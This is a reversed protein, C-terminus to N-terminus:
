SKIKRAMKKFKGISSSIGDNFTKKITKQIISKNKNMINAFNSVMPASRSYIINTFFSSSKSFIDDTDKEKILSIMNDDIDNVNIFKNKSDDNYYNNNIKSSPIPICNTKEDSLQKFYENGKNDFKENRLFLSDDDVKDSNSDTSDYTLNKTFHDDILHLNDDFTNGRVRKIIEKDIPNKSVLEEKDFWEDNSIDEWTMRNVPDPELLKKLYVIIEDCLIYNDDIRRRDPYMISNTELNQKLIKIKKCSHFPTRFYIMEYLLVGISWIDSKVDYLQHNLLEPAMYYPSGCITANLDIDTIIKSLGFDIYKITKKSNENHIMINSSKIDRHQINLELLHKYGNLIQQFLERVENISLKPINHRLEGGEFLEMVIIMKGKEYKIDYYKTINPHPNKILIKIIDIERKLQKLVKDGLSTTFIIKVAVEENKNGTYRGKFVKSFAGKGIPNNYNIELDTGHEHSANM